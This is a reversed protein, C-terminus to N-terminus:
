YGDQAGEQSIKDTPLEDDYHETNEDSLHSDYLIADEFIEPEEIECPADAYHPWEHIADDEICERSLQEEHDLDEQREWEEQEREQQACIGAIWAAEMDNCCFYTIM